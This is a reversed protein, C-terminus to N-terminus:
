IAHCSNSLSFARGLETGMARSPCFDFMQTSLPLLQPLLWRGPLSLAGFRTWLTGNEQFFMHVKSKKEWSRKSCTPDLILAKGAFIHWAEKVM